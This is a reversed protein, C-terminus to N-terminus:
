QVTVYQKGVVLEITNVKFAANLSFSPYKITLLDIANSIFFVNKTKGLSDVHCQTPDMKAFSSFNLRILSIYGHDDPTSWHLLSRLCSLYVQIGKM